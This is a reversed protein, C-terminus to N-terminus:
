ASVANIILLEMETKESCSTSKMRQETDICLRIATEIQQVTFKQSEAIMKQCIYPNLNLEKSLMNKNKGSEMGLKLMLLLKFQREIMYLIYAAREGKTILDNLLELSKNVKRQSIFDVMDFIDNDSDSNKSFLINIDEKKIERGYTYWYLEDAENEIFGMDGQALSCFLKLEVPGINKGKSAFLEKVKKALYEGKLRDAKIICAKKDLKLINKSPKERKSDFVCYLILICYEPINDIYNYIFDCIEKKSKDETQKLFDARYVTVARKTSMFPVTECANFIDESQVSSGDFQVYNFDYFDNQITKDTLLKINEKILQEDYGCFIYCREIINNKIKKEFESIDIM